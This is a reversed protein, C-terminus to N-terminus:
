YKMSATNELAAKAAEVAEGIDYECAIEEGVDVGRPSGYELSAGEHKLVGFWCPGGGPPTIPVMSLLRDEMEHYVTGDNALTWGPAAMAFGAIAVKVENRRRVEDPDTGPGNRDLGFTQVIGDAFDRPAVGDDAAAKMAQLDGNLSKYSELYKVSATSLMEDDVERLYDAYFNNARRGGASATQTTQNQHMGKEM